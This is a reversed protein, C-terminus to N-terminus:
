LGPHRLDIDVPVLAWEAIRGLTRPLDDSYCSPLSRAPIKGFYDPRELQPADINLTLAKLMTQSSNLLYGVARIDM